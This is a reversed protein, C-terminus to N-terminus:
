PQDGLSKSDHRVKKNLNSKIDAYCLLINILNERSRGTWIWVRSGNNATNKDYEEGTIGFTKFDEGVYIQLLEKSSTCQLTVLWMSLLSASKVQVCFCSASCYNDHFDQLCHFHFSKMEWYVYELFRWLPELFGNLGYSWCVLTQHQFYDDQKLLFNKKDQFTPRWQFVM